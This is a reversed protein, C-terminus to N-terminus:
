ITVPQALIFPRVIMANFRTGTKEWHEAHLECPQVLDGSQLWKQVQATEDNTFALGATKLDLAPDVYIMNGGEFHPRLYAWDVDGTYKELKEEASQADEAPSFDDKFM